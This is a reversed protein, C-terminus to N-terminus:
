SQICRLACPHPGFPPNSRGVHPPRTPPGEEGSASGGSSASFTQNNICRRYEVSNVAFANCDVRVNQGPGAAALGKPPHGHPSPSAAHTPQSSTFLPSLPHAPVCLWPFRM